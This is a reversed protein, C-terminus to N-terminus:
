KSVGVHLEGIFKLDVEEVMSYMYMYMYTSYMCM